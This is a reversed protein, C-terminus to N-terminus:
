WWDSVYNPMWWSKLILIRQLKKTLNSNEFAAADAILEQFENASYVPKLSDLLLVLTQHLNPVPLRPLSRQCSYLSPSYGSIMRVLVGWLLTKASQSKLNEYLWGRYSLLARLAYQRLKM